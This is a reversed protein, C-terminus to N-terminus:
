KSERRLVERRKALQLELGLRAVAVVDKCRLTTPRGEHCLERVRSEDEPHFLPGGAQARARLIEIKEASGPSATTPSM